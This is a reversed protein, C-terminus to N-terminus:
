GWDPASEDADPESGSTASVHLGAAREEAEVQQRLLEVSARMEELPIVRPGIEAEVRVPANAGHLKALQDALARLERIASLKLSRDPIPQGDTDTVVRGSSAVVPQNSDLIAWAALTLTDLRDTLMTRLEEASERVTSDLARLIGQRAHSKSAYGLSDAVQRLSAGRTRMRAAKADREATDLSRVFRGDGGRAPEPHAHDHTRAPDTM